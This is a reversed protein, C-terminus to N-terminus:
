FRALVGAYPGAFSADLFANNTDVKISLKRYGAYVGVMPLPSFEVQADTDLFRNKKIGLYGVRAAVGIFDALAVRGRLGITPIPANASSSKKGLAASSIDTAVKTGKLSIDLGLQARSPLDDMNILYYTYALDYITLKMNTTVTTGATYTTGNFNVNQTLTSTGSTNIPLYGLSLRSDGFQLAVEGTIEKSSKLGLDKGLDIKQPTGALAAGVTGTPKLNSYGLKLMITEDASASAAFLCSAAMAAFLKNKM